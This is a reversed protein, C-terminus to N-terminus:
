CIDYLKLFLLYAFKRILKGYLFALRGERDAPSIKFVNSKGVSFFRLPGGSRGLSNWDTM